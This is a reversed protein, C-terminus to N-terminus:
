NIEQATRGACLRLFNSFVLLDGVNMVQRVDRQVYTAIYDSLWQHVPINHGYIRPYAGQWLFTFLEDPVEPFGQMEYFDPPLLNL